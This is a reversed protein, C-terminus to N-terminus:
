EPSGSKASTAQQWELIEHVVVLDTPVEHDEDEDVEEDEEEEDTGPEDPM